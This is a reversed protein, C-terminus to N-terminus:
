VNLLHWVSKKILGNILTLRLAVPNPDSSNSWAKDTCMGTVHIAWSDTELCPLVELLPCTYWLQQNRQSDQAGPM